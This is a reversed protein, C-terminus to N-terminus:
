PGEHMRKKILDAIERQHFTWHDYVAPQVGPYRREMEQVLRPPQHARDIYALQVAPLEDPDPLAYVLGRIWSLYTNARHENDHTDLCYHYEGVQEQLRLLVGVEHELATERRNAELQAELNARTAQRDKEANTEAARRDKIGTAIAVIVAVATAIAAGITGVATAITWFSDPSEVTIQV